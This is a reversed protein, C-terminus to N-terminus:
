PTEKDPTAPAVPPQKKKTVRQWQQKEEWSCGARSMCKREFEAATPIKPKVIPAPKPAAKEEAVPAVAPAETEAAKLEPAPAPAPQTVPDPQKAAPEPKSEPFQPESAPTSSHECAALTFLVATLTRFNSM